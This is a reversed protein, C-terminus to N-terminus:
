SAPVAGQYKTEIIAACHPQISAARRSRSYAPHCCATAAVRAKWTSQPYHRGSAPLETIKAIGPSQR